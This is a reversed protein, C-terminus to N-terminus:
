PKSQKATTTSTSWEALPTARGALRRLYYRHPGYRVETLKGGEVLESVVGWSADSHDLLRRVASERMPHVATISMLDEAPDGTASFADGEYGLLLEVRPHWARFVEYARALAAERPIHVWPEAPPRTPVSLYAVTPNLLGVFRATARLEDEGDNVDDVLMTETTLTGEFRSAFESMGDLIAALDLRRHPRNVRRWTETRVADVKLSVHDASLLVSRVDSRSLLSGNTIVAIPIGLPRLLRITADLGMDLTPEGDPVFTLYDIPERARRAADVRNRVAAAVSASGFFARRDCHMQVTRGVQCYACSYSCVKPPINNIGLSRGLRRSPVPGFATGRLERPESSGPLTMRSGPDRNDM